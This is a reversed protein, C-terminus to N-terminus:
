NLRRDCFQLEKAGHMACRKINVAIPKKPESRIKGSVQHAVVGDGLSFGDADRERWISQM